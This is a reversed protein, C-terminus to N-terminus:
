SVLMKAKRKGAKTSGSVVAISASAGLRTAGAEVFRRADETTRVGGSAKVGMEDGVVTRMLVVDEVTAGGHGFGTSTKVYAAGAIKSLACAVVKQDHDLLGTEIIVKVPRPAAAAVVATVDDLVAAYDRSKLAGINMVMDIEAAGNRVAERTEYAKAAPTMAGLPFGVVAIAKTQSGELLAACYRVNSANVCVTAFRYRRAEDCLKKLDDRSAEPKLLTHDILAALDSAPQEHGVGAAIRSAGLRVIQRVDDPRKVHCGRCADCESPSVTECPINRGDGTAPSAQAGPERSLRAQVRRAIEDVLQDIQDEAQM